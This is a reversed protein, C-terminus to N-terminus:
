TEWYVSSVPDATYRAQPSSKVSSHTQLNKSLKQPHYGRKIAFLMFRLCSSFLHCSIGIRPYSSQINNLHQTKGAQHTSEMDDWTLFKLLNSYRQQCTSELPVGSASSGSCEVKYPLLVDSSQCERVEPRVPFSCYDLHIFEIWVWKLFFSLLQNMDNPLDLSQNHSHGPLPQFVGESKSVEKTTWHNDGHKWQM